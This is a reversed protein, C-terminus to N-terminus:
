RHIGEKSAENIPEKELLSNVKNVVGLNYYRIFEAWVKQKHAPCIGHTGPRPPIGQEKLCWSCIARAEEM